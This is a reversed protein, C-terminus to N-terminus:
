FLTNGGTPLHNIMSQGGAARGGASAVANIAQDVYPDQIGAAGDDGPTLVVDKTVPPPPAPSANVLNELVRRERQLAKLERRAARREEQATDGGGRRSTIRELREIERDIRLIQGAPTM